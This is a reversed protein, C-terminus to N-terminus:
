ALQAPTRRRRLSAGVLGLGAIMMAWTAPEPVASVGYDLRLVFDSAGDAKFAEPPYGFSMRDADTIGTTSVTVGYDKFSFLTTGASSLDPVVANGIKLTGYAGSADDQFVMFMTIASGEVMFNTPAYPNGFIFYSGTGLNIAKTALNNLFPNAVGGAQTVGLPSCGSGPITDECNGTSDGHFLNISVITVAAAAPQATLLGAALAAAIMAGIKPM